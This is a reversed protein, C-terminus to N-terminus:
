TFPKHHGLGPPLSSFPSFYTSKLYIKSTSPNATSPQTKPCIPQLYDTQSGNSQIPYGICFNPPFFHNSNLCVAKMQFINSNKSSLQTETIDLFDLFREIVLSLIYSLNGIESCSNWLVLMTTFSSPPHLSTYDDHVLLLIQM